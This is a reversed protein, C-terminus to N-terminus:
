AEWSAGSEGDLAALIDTVVAAATPSKGAGRGYLLVDGTYRTKILAGNFVDSIHYLLNDESVERPEVGIDTLSGNNDFEAYAILKYLNGHSKAVAIDALTLATIGTTKVTDASVARGSVASALIAIKRAADTGLIDDDPVREAYGLKQATELATKFDAGNHSMQTLIYNTTGNLIGQVSLVRDARVLDSLPKVLPIGGGVSAEFRYVANHKAALAFLEAGYKAVLEKNSTVVSVGNVLAAKTYHYAVGVGGIVEAVVAIEPDNAIVSFDNTFKGDFPTGTIERIDLIYKLVGKYKDELIEAVGSGVTGFGLVAVKGNVRKM